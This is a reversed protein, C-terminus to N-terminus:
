AFKRRQDALKWFSSTVRCGRWSRTIISEGICDARNAKAMSPSVNSSPTCGNSAIQTAVMGKSRAYTESRRIQRAVAHGTHVVLKRRQPQAKENVVLGLALGHRLGFPQLRDTHTHLAPVHRGDVACETLANGQGTGVDDLRQAVHRRGLEFLLVHRSEVLGVPDGIRPSIIACLSSAACRRRASSLVSVLSSNSTFFAIAECACHAVSFAVASAMPLTYPKSTPTEGRPRSAILKATELVTSGASHSIVCLATAFMPRKSHAACDGSM